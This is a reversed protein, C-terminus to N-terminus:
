RKEVHPLAKETKEATVRRPYSVGSNAASCTGFHLFDRIEVVFIIKFHPAIYLLICLKLTAFSYIM